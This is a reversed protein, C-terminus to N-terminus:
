FPLAMADTGVTSKFPFGIWGAASPRYEGPSSLTPGLYQFGPDLTNVPSQPTPTSGLGCALTLVLTLALALKVNLHTSHSM